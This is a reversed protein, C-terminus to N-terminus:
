RGLSNEQLRSIFEFIKFLIFVVFLFVWAYALNNRASTEMRGENKWKLSALKNLGLKLTTISKQVKYENKETFRLCTMFYDSSHFSNQIM